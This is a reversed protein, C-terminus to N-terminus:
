AAQELQRHWSAQIQQVDLIRKGLVDVTKDLSELFDLSAGCQYSTHITKRVQVLAKELSKLETDCDKLHKHIAKVKTMTRYYPWLLSLEVFSKTSGEKNQNTTLRLSTDTQILGKLLLSKQLPNTLSSELM